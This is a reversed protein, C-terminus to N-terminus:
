LGSWKSLQGIEGTGRELLKDAIHPVPTPPGLIFAVVNGVVLSPRDM